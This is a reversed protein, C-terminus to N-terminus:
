MLSGCNFIGHFNTPACQWARAFCTWDPLIKKKKKMEKIFWGVCTRTYIYINKKEKKKGKKKLEKRDDNIM